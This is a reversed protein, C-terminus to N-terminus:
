AHEANYLKYAHLLNKSSYALADTDKVLFGQYRKEFDSHPVEGVMDFYTFVILTQSLALNSSLM